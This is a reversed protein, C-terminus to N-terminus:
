QSKIQINTVVHDDNYFIALKTSPSTTATYYILLLHKNDDVGEILKSKTHNFLTQVDIKSGVNLNQLNLKESHILEHLRQINAKCLLIGNSTALQLFKKVNPDCNFQQINENIRNVQKEIEQKLLDVEEFYADLNIINTM